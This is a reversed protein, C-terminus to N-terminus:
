EVDPAVPDKGCTRCDDDHDGREQYEHVDVRLADRLLVGVVEFARGFLGRSADVVQEVVAKGRDFRRGLHVPLGQGAGADVRVRSKLHDVRGLEVIGKEDGGIAYPVVDVAAGFFHAAALVVDLAHLALAQATSFAAKLSCRM